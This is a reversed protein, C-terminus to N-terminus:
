FGMGFAEVVEYLYYVASTEIDQIIGQIPGNRYKRFQWGDYHERTRTRELYVFSHVTLDPMWIMLIRHSNHM